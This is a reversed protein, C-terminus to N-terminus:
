LQIKGSLCRTTSNSCVGVAHGGHAQSVFLAGHGALDDQHKIVAAIFQLLPDNNVAFALAGRNFQAIQFFVHFDVGLQEIDGDVAVLLVLQEHAIHGKLPLDCDHWSTAHAAFVM